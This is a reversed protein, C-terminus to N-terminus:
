RAESGGYGPEHVIVGRGDKTTAERRSPGGEGYWRLNGSVQTGAERAARAAAASADENAQRIVRISNTAM